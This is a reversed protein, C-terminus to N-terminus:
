VRVESITYRKPKRVERLDVGHLLMSFSTSDIEIGDGVNGPLSFSGRQLRKYWIAYGDRDWYLVKVCDQNRNRFVFLHGSLPDEKIHERVLKSLTDFSRRMDIPLVCFFVRVSAPFNLM